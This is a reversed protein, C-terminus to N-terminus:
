PTHHPPDQTRMIVATGRGRQGQREGGWVWEQDAAGIVEEPSDNVLILEAHEGHELLMLNNREAMELIGPLFSSGHYYPVIISIKANSDGNRNDALCPMPDTMKNRM